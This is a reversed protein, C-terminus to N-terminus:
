DVGLCSEIQEVISLNTTAKFTGSLDYPNPLVMSLPKKSDFLCKFLYSEIKGNALFNFVASGIRVVPFNEIIPTVSLAKANTM